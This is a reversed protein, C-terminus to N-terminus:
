LGQNRQFTKRWSDPKFRYGRSQTISRGTARHFRANSRIGMEIETQHELYWAIETMQRNSYV